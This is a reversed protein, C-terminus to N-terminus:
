GVNWIIDGPQGHECVFQWVKADYTPASPYPPLEVTPEYFQEPAVHIVTNKPVMDEWITKGVQVVNFTAQPFVEHLVQVLTASGSALWFRHPQNSPLNSPLAERIAQTLARKIEDAGFGFPLLLRNPDAKAYKTAASQLVKLTAGGRVRLSAGHEIARLNTVYDKRGVFVTARKNLKKAIVALAVQAYGNWPGAYVLETEKTDTFARWARQKTGGPLLDDRVVRFETDHVGEVVLPPNLPDQNSSTLTPTLTPLSKELEHRAEPTDRSLTTKQFVWLPRAKGTAGRSCVVGYFRAGPLQQMFLCLHECANRVDFLYVAAYGGVRLANWAIEMSRFLFERLWSPYESYKYMSQAPDDSYVEFDFFPPSSIMLDFHNSPLQSTEFGQYSVTFNEQQEPDLYMERIEDHGQKLSANPDFGRYEEAQLAIAGLLRDGWGASMDLIRLPPHDPLLHRVTAVMLSPKFQTAEKTQSYIAERLTPPTITDGQDLVYRACQERFEPDTWEQLPTNATDQRRTNLRQRETFYDGLIDMNHYDEDPHDFTIRPSLSFLRTRFRTNWPPTSEIVRGRFHRLNEMCKRPDIWERKFPFPEILALVQALKKPTALDNVTLGKKHNHFRKEM